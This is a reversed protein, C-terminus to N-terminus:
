KGKSYTSPARREPSATENGTSPTSPPEIEMSATSTPAGAQAADRVSFLFWRAGANPRRMCYLRMTEGSRTVIEFWHRDVYKEGRDVKVTRWERMVQAVEYRLGRWAFAHPLAPEGRAIRVPDMSDVDPQIAESVFSSPRTM